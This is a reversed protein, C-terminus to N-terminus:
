KKSITITEEKKTISINFTRQLIRLLLNVNGSEVTGTFTLNALEPSSFKVKYGFNEELTLAVERLPAEEFVLKKDLWANYKSAVVAKKVVAKDSASFDVLEGPKMDVEKKDEDALYLKVKGSNLVVQTKSRRTNVNFKTGLVQVDLDNTHVVFKQSNKKHTVSFFGEGELWIERPKESDWEPSYTISSNANLVVVSNDPLVITKNQGFATQYEVENNLLVAALISVILIAASVAAVSYWSSVLHRLKGSKRQSDYADNSALIREWVETLETQLPTDQDTSLELILDRAESVLAANAANSSAWSAWKSKNNLSEDKVWKIFDPDLILDDLTYNQSHM